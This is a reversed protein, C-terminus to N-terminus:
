YLHALDIITFIFITFKLVWQPLPEGAITNGYQNNLNFNTFKLVGPILPEEDKSALHGM